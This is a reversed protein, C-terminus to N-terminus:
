FAMYYKSQPTSIENPRLRITISKARNIGLNTIQITVTRAIIKSIMVAIINKTLLLVVKYFPDPQAMIAPTIHMMKM